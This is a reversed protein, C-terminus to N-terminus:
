LGECDRSKRKRAADKEKRDLYSYWSKQEHEWKPFSLAGNDENVFGSSIFADVVRAVKVAESFGRLIAGAITKRDACQIEGTRDAANLGWAWLSVVAGLAEHETLGSDRVFRRFRGENTLGDRITVWAM